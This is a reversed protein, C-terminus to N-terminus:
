SDGDKISMNKIAIERSLFKGDLTKPFDDKEEEITEEREDTYVEAKNSGIKYGVYLFILNIVGTLLLAIIYSIM